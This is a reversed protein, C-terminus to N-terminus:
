ATTPLHAPRPKRKGMDYSYYCREFLPPLQAIGTRAQLIQEVGRIHIANTNSLLFIRYQATLRQLVEIRAPPIDGLLANWATDFDQNSLPPLRFTQIVRARFEADDIFGKEYDWFLDSQFTDRWIIEKLSPNLAEFAATSREFVVDIIM